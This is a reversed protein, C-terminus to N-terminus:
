VYKKDCGLRGPLDETTSMQREEAWLNDGLNSMLRPSPRTRYVAIPDCWLSCHCARFFSPILQLAVGKRTRPKLGSASLGQFGYEARYRSNSSPGPFASITLDCVCRFIPGFSPTANTVSHMCWYNEAPLPRGVLSELTFADCSVHAYGACKNKGRSAWRRISHHLHLNNKRQRTAPLLRQHFGIHLDQSHFMIDRIVLSTPKRSDAFSKRQM